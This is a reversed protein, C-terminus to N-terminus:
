RRLKLKLSAIAGEKAFAKLAKISNESMKRRKFYNRPISPDVAYVVAPAVITMAWAHANEPSGDKVTREYFETFAGVLPKAFGRFVKRSVRLNRQLIQFALTKCWSPYEESFLTDFALDILKELLQFQGEPSELLTLNDKICCGFRADKWPQLAYGLVAELLEDKGGFHYGISSTNEHAASAIARTTVADIGHEAFLIGAASILAQKTAASTSYEAM